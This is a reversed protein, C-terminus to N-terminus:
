QALSAVFACKPSNKVEIRSITGISIQFLGRLANTIDAPDSVELMSQNPKLTHGLM